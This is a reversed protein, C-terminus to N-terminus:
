TRRIVFKHMQEKHYLQLDEISKEDLLLDKDILGQTNERGAEEMKCAKCIFDSRSKFGQPPTADFTKKCEVCVTDVMKIIGRQSTHDKLSLNV